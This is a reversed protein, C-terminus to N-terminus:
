NLRKIFKQLWSEAKVWDGIDHITAELERHCTACLTLLNDPDNNSNDGDRHHVDLARLWLPKYGCYDCADGRHQLHKRRYKAMHCTNCLSDYRPNGSSNYGKFRKPSEQCSNCLDGEEHSTPRGRPM